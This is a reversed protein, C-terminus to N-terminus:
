RCMFKFEFHQFGIYKNGEFRAAQFFQYKVPLDLLKLNYNSHNLSVHAM